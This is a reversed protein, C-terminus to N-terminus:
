PRLLKGHAAFGPHQLLHVGKYEASMCGASGLASGGRPTNKAHILAHLPWHPHPQQSELPHSGTSLNRVLSLCSAVDPPAFHVGWTKKKQRREALRVVNSTYVGSSTELTDSPGAALHRMGYQM